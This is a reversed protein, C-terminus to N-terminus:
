DVHALDHLVAVIERDDHEIGSVRDCPRRMCDSGPLCEKERSGPPLYEPPIDLAHGLSQDNEVGRPNNVASDAFMRNERVAILLFVIAETSIFGAHMDTVIVESAGAM